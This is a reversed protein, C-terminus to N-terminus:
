QITGIRYMIHIINITTDFNRMVVDNPIYWTSTGKNLICITDGYKYDRKFNDEVLIIAGNNLKVNYSTFSGGCSSLITLLCIFLLKKM